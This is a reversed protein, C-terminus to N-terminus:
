YGKILRRFLMWARERMTGSPAIRNRLFTLRLIRAQEQAVAQQLQAIRNLNDVIQQQLAKTQQTVTDREHALLAKENMLVHLTATLQTNNHELQQIKQHAQQMQQNHQTRQPVAESLYAWALQDIFQITAQRFRKTWGVPDQSIVEWAVQQQSKNEPTRMQLFNPWHFSEHALQWGIKLQKPGAIEDTRWNARFHLASPHPVYAFNQQNGGRIINDWLKWDAGQPIDEPWYGYKEFCSRRHVVNSAPITNGANLFFNLHEPNQLNTMFPMMTGDPNVWMPRSYAWEIEASEFASLMIELHDPLLIDDHGVFAVFEGKAQRLAINRNAYGFYPAKPLDFWRIREDDFQNVIETTNDTCGDGVILLEFNQETQWLVSKIAFPLVDARNHTPLLISVRTVAM